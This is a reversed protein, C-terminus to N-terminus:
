LRLFIQNMSLNFNLSADDVKPNIFPAMWIERSDNSFGPSTLLNSPNRRDSYNGMIQLGRPEAEIESNQVINSGRDDFIEIQNM